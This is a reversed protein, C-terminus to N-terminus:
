EYVEMLEKLWQVYEENDEMMEAFSRSKVENYWKTSQNISRFPRATEPRRMEETPEPHEEDYAMHPLNYKNPIFGDLGLTGCCTLDDGLFQLRTEGCFFKLGVKHAEDRIEKFHDTLVDIPYQFRSGNWEMDGVCKAKRRTSMGEIIIGYVGANSFSKLSEKIQPLYMPYYPQIRVNVRKTKGSLKEIAKIREAFCPAGRELADYKKCAASIQVVCNCEAILSIYPEEAIMTGKTSIIFPYKTEALLELCEFTKRETKEIPQFPDSTAGFHIPINWDCFRTESTRKGNIFLKLANIANHTPAVINKDPKENAFCYSCVFSCGTYTDFHIPYDCGVCQSGCQIAYIGTPKNKM